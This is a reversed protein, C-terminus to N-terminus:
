VLIEKDLWTRKGDILKWTKGRRNTAASLLHTNTRKQAAISKNKKAEQTDKYGTRSKSIKEAREKTYVSPNCCSKMMRDKMETKSLTSLVVSMTNGIQKKSDESHSILYPTHGTQSEIFANKGLAYFRSSPKYRNESGNCMRWFAYNMKKKYESRVATVLLLHCIFHEKAILRVLNESNNSGGLSKPVIHHDETYCDLDRNRASEIIGFYWKTYKNERFLKKTM